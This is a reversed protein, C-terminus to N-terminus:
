ECRSGRTEIFQCIHEEWFERFRSNYRYLVSIGMAIFLMAALYLPLAEGIIELLKM